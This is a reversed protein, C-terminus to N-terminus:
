RRLPIAEDHQDAYVLIAAGLQGLHPQCVRIKTQERAKSLSPLLIGLLLVVIGMVVLLEVLTFAPTCASQRAKM